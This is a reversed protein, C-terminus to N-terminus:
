DKKALDKSLRDCADTITKELSAIHDLLDLLPKSTVTKSKKKRSVLKCYGRVADQITSYYYKSKWTEVGDKSVDLVQIVFSHSDIMLRTSIDLTGLVKLTTDGKQRGKGAM